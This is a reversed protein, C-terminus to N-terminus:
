SCAMGLLVLLGDKREAEERGDGDNDRIGSAMVRRLTVTWKFLGEEVPREGMHLRELWVVM